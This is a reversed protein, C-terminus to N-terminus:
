GELWRKMLAIGWRGSLEPHFQCALVGGREFASVYPGGHETLAAAWGTPPQALYYSHAFYAHGADLLRCGPAPDVRNWGLHPVKMPGTFRRAHGPVAGLGPVGPSEESGELLLQLGLCIALLPRGERVRERLAEDLGGRLGEMAAGLAGVGPLVAYDASRVDAPDESLVPEGGVRRIGALVSALNATGTRVVVVRRGM